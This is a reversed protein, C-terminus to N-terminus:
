KLKIVTYEVRRNRKRAESTFERILPKDFGYGRALLREKEIGHNILYNTVSKARELSLKRNYDAAGLDCTHGSVEIKLWEPHINIQNMFRNLESRSEPRLTSQNIDFFVNILATTKFMNKKNLKPIELDLTIKAVEKERLDIDKSTFLFSDKSATYSYWKGVPLLVTYDGNPRTNTVGLIKFNKLDEWYIKVKDIPNGFNDTVKGKVIAVPKTLKKPLDIVYIDSKGFGSDRVSSFYVEDGSVPISYGWDKHVTNIEKGLNVPETWETWSEGNKYSVFLDLDGLGPHGSSCFFLTRGDPHFIPGRECQTTNINEGLNMPETWGSDTKTSIFIDTNFHPHRYKNKPRFDGIVGPRDSVFFITKGDSSLCADAEFNESNIPEGINKVDSWGFKELTSFYIDGNGYSDPYNGYIFATSSDPSLNMIGEHFPTNIPKGLNIAESWGTNTRKSAWVDEGGIGGKRYRATFFLTNGDISIVPYYEHYSKNVNNGLNHIKVDLADAKLIDIIKNIRIKEDPFLKLYNKYLNIAKQWKKQQILGKASELLVKSLQVTSDRNTDQAKIQTIPKLNLSTSAKSSNHFCISLCLFSCFLLFSTNKIKKIM